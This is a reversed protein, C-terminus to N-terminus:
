EFSRIYALIDAMEQHTIREGFNGPMAGVPYGPVAYAGPNVISEVFYREPEDSYPRGDAGTTAAAWQTETLPAVVENGHCGACAYAGNYITQGNNPDGTYNELEVLIADVDTGVPEGGDGVVIVSADAPIKAFQNVANVDDITWDAGKDWNLIYATLDELQDQRLPGGAIQGWAAMGGGSAPWLEASGPRGHILTTLVYNPLSGEWSVQSLRDTDPDYGNEIAVVMQGLIGDVEAEVDLLQAELDAIEAEADALQPELEAVREQATTIEEESLEGGAIAATLEAYEDLLGQANRIQLDINEIQRRQSALFDYGFMHPNNLGPARGQIGLGDIGHCTSCNQNFLYAGREISRGEYQDEFTAMRAPENIAVWGVIVMIGVFSAIGVLIRNELSAILLRDLKM